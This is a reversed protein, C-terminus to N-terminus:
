PILFDEIPEFPKIIWGGPGMTVNGVPFPPLPPLPPNPPFPPLDIDVVVVTDAIKRVHKNYDARLASWEPLNRDIATVAARVDLLQRRMDKAMKQASGLTAASFFGGRPAQYKLRFRGATLREQHIGYDRAIKAWDGGRAAVFDDTVNERRIPHRELIINAWAIDKKGDKAVLKDALWPHNQETLKKLDYTAEFRAVRDHKSTDGLKGDEDMLTFQM